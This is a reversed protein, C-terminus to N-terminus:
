PAAVQKIVLANGEPHAAYGQPKLRFSLASVAEPDSKLGKLRLEGVVFEIAAPASGAPAVAWFAGLMTELDRGSAVGSAQELAAVERAMQIPADVVVRVQPFTGTLVERIATRQANVRAQEKWAWANLGALNVLLLALLAVRAARWRPARLLSGLAESWRKRTRAGSSNVLEFQALDWSSQSALLSRQASQQLTANRKFLQEALAAVAPEAVLAQDSPWDLLAVSSTTAPWVAVGGRTTCVLRADTPEGIVHLVDMREDPAFEPVIRSVPRGSQELAQLAAQLWARDCVAVWVPADDRPSPALAFHLQATEDLLREELLGELVARVRLPSAEQYFRRGLTGKPLQVQHWSLYRAPVVAVVDDIRGALPLLALAARSQEGVTSGDSTLVYDYLSAPSATEQPLTIILTTMHAFFPSATM